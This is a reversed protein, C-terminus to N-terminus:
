SILEGRHSSFYQCYKLFYRYKHFKLEFMWDIQIFYFGDLCQRQMLFDIFDEVDM